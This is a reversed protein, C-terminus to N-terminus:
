LILFYWNRIFCYSCCAFLPFDVTELKCIISQLTCVTSSSETGSFERELARSWYSYSSMEGVRVSYPVYSGISIMTSDSLSFSSYRVGNYSCIWSSLYIINLSTCNSNIHLQISIEVRMCHVIINSVTFKFAFTYMSNQLSFFTYMIIVSSNWVNNLLRENSMGDLQISSFLLCM